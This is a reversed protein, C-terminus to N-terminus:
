LNISACSMAERLALIRAEPRDMEWSTLVAQDDAAVNRPLSLRPPAFPARIRSAGCFLQSTLWGASSALTRCYSSAIWFSSCLMRSSTSMRSPPKVTREVCADISAPSALDLTVGSVDLGQASLDCAAQQVRGALVDAIVVRAGAQAIAQAFAYGLGRAGGTVLVRRGALLNNFTSMM